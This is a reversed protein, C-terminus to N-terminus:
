NDKIWNFILDSIVGKGRDQNVESRSFYKQVTTELPNTKDMILKNKVAKREFCNRNM